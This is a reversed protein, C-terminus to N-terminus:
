FDGKNINQWSNEKDEMINYSEFYSQEELIEKSEYLSIKHELRDISLQLNSKKLYLSDLQERLLTERAELTQNGKQLLNAYDILAEIPVGSHRLCIIMELWSLHKETFYRNGNPLRPINPLLGIREYYRLTNANIEYKRSVETITYQKIM